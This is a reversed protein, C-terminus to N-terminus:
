RVGKLTRKFSFKPLNDEKVQGSWAIRRVPGIFHDVPVFGIVRSDNPHDRNDDMMFFYDKKFTYSSVRTENIYILGQFDVRINNNESGEIIDKYLDVTNMTLEVTVGKRPVVLPGFQDRNWMFFGSPPYYDISSDGIFQKTPRVTKVGELQGIAAAATTDLDLDYIGVKEILRPKEVLYKRLFQRGIERGDTVVRYESRSLPPPDSKQRNLYLKKDWVLVTDGPFGVIRSIQIRKRDVPVDSGRPHNFAVLDQRKFKRIAPTRWYPLRVLDSYPASPGPLGIITNPVRWGSIFKNVWVRDGPLLTSAMHFDDVKVWQFLLVRCLWLGLLIGGAWLAAKRIRKMQNEHFDQEV